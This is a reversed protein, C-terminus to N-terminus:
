LFADEAHIQGSIKCMDTGYVTHTLVAYDTYHSAVIQVMQPDVWGEM